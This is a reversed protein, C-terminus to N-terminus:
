HNIWKQILEPIQNAPYTAEPITSIQSKGTEQTTGQFQVKRQAERGERYLWGILQVEQAIVSYADEPAKPRIAFQKKKEKDSESPFRIHALYVVNLDSKKFLDVIEKVGNAAMRYHPYAELTPDVQQNPFPKAKVLFRLVRDVSTSFTDWIFTRYSAWPEIGENHAEIMLKIAAFSDFDFRTIERALDPDKHLVTWASDTTILCTKGGIVKAIQAALTTKGAGYDGYFLARVLRQEEWVSSPEGMAELKALDKADM